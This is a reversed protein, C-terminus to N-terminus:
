SKYSYSSLYLYLSQTFHWGLRSKLTWQENTRNFYVYFSLLLTAIMLINYELNSKYIATLTGLIYSIEIIYDYKFSLLSFLFAYLQNDFFRYSSLLCISFRDYCYLYKSYRSYYELSSHYLITSISLNLTNLYYFLPTYNPQYLCSILIFFGTTSSVIKNDKM